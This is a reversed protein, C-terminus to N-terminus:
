EGAVIQSDNVASLLAQTVKEKIKGVGETINTTQVTFQHILEKIDIRINVNKSGAPKSVQAKGEEGAAGTAGKKAIVHPANTQDKAFDAMGENWGKKAAEAIRKGAGITSSALKDMGRAVQDSDLTFTGVLIDKLGVFYDVIISGVEKIVAWTAWLFARFKQFHNYAYVIAAVVAGIAVIIIGIPNATMAANLAYQAAAWLKTVISAGEYATGLVFMAAVQAYTWATQVAQIAVGALLVGRYIIYTATVGAVIYGLLKFLESNKKCWELTNKFTTAIWELAPTLKQLLEIALEGVGMKLSGMIKNFRFLPDANAMAKAVGEYGSESIAELMAQQAKVLHGGAQLSKIHEKQADTFIVGYRTLKQLGDMPDAFAKGFMIATESLGHNTQKAIDAVMGMSREFVSKTIAPFTLLQSQMDMVEARSFQVQSSLKKAFGTLDDMSMGAKERTSELNAEVKAIVQELGHFAEVGAHVFEFGKFVAFGIGLAGILHKGFSTAASGAQHLSGEMHNIAGDAGRIKETLLDKLSM